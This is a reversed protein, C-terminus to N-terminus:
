PAPPDYNNRHSMELGELKFSGNEVILDEWIRIEEFQLQVLTHETVLASEPDGPIANVLAKEIRAIPRYQYTYDSDPVVAAEDASVSLMERTDADREITLYIIGEDISFTADNVALPGGQTYVYGGRMDWQPNGFEDPEPNRTVQWEHVPESGTSADEDEPDYMEVSIDFPKQPPFQVRPLTMDPVPESPFSGGIFPAPDTDNPSM